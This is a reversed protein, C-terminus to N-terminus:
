GQLITQIDHRITTASIGKLLMEALLHRLRRRLINAEAPVITTVSSRALVTARRGHALDIWGEQALERYAEAITNFHVGLQAALSRISPLQQGTPLAGSNLHLRFQDVIQRYAPTGSSTDVQIAADHM